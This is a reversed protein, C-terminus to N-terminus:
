PCLRQTEAGHPEIGTRDQMMEDVPITPVAIGDLADLFETVAGDRVHQFMEIRRWRWHVSSQEPDLTRAISHLVRLLPLAMNGSDLMSAENTFTPVSLTTSASPLVCTNPPTFGPGLAFM